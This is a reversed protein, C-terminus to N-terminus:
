IIGAVELIRSASAVWSFTSTCEIARRRVSADRGKEVDEKATDICHILEELDIQNWTGRGSFFPTGDEAPVVKFNTMPIVNEPSCYDLHATNLTAVCYMGISMMEFLPLDWGECYSPSVYTESNAIISQLAARTSVRPVIILTAKGKTYAFFPQSVPIPRMDREHIAFFPYRQNMFPNFWAAVLMIDRKEGIKIVADLLENHGKRKEFKGVNSIIQIREPLPIGLRAEWYIRSTKLINRRPSYREKEGPLLHCAHPTLFVKSNPLRNRLINMGWTSATGIADFKKLGEIVQPPFDDVEFTSIIVRKERGPYIENPHSLHWFGLSVDIPGQMYCNGKDMYKLIIRHCSHPSNLEEDSRDIDGITRVELSYRTEEQINGAIIGAAYGASAQGYGLSNIPGHWVVKKM